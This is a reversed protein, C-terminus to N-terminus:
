CVILTQTLEEKLHESVEAGLKACRTCYDRSKAYKDTAVFLHELDLSHVLDLYIYLM